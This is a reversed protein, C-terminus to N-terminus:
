LNEKVAAGILKRLANECGSSKDTDSNYLSIYKEADKFLSIGKWLEPLKMNKEDALQDAMIYWLEYPMLESQIDMEAMVKQVDETGASYVATTDSGSLIDELLLEPDSIDAKVESESPLCGTEACIKLVDSIVNKDEGILGTRIIRSELGAQAAKSCLSSIIRRSKIYISEDDEANGTLDAIDDIIVLSKKNEYLSFKLSEKVRTVDMSYEKTHESGKEYAGAFCIVRGTNKGLQEYIDSDGLITESERSLDIVTIRENEFSLGPAISDAICVARDAGRQLIREAFSYSLRIDRSLIVTNESANESSYSYESIIDEVDDNIRELYLKDTYDDSGMINLLEFSDRPTEMNECMSVLIDKGIYKSIRYIIKMVDLSNGGSAYINDDESLDPKNLVARWIELIDKEQETLERVEECIALSTKENGADDYVTLYLERTGASRIYENLIDEVSSTDTDSPLSIRLRNNGSVTIRCESDLKEKIINRIGLLVSSGALRVSSDTFEGSYEFMFVTKKYGEPLESDYVMYAEDFSIDAEAMCVAYLVDNVQKIICDKVGDIKKMAESLYQTNIYAGCVDEYPSIIEKFLVNREGIFNGIYLTRYLTKGGVEATEASDDARTDYINGVLSFQLPEKDPNLVLTHVKQFPKGIHFYRGANKKIRTIYSCYPYGFVNYWRIKEKEAKESFIIEAERRGQGYTLFCADSPLKESLEYAKSLPVIYLTRGEVGDLYLEAGNSATITWALTSFVSRASLDAYAASVDLGLKETFFSAFEMTDSPLYRATSIAGDASIYPFVYEPVDLRCETDLRVEQSIDGAAVATIGDGFSRCGDSIVAGCKLEDIIRSNFADGNLSDLIVARKGCKAAAIGASLEKINDECCVAINETEVDKILRYLEDAKSCIMGATYGVSDRNILIKGGEAEISFSNLHAAM